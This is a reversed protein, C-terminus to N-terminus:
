MYSYVKSGSSLGRLGNLEWFQNQIVEFSNLCRELFSNLSFRFIHKAWIKPNYFGINVWKKGNLSRISESIQYHNFHSRRPLRWRQCLKSIPNWMNIKWEVFLWIFKIRISTWVLLHTKDTKLKGPGTEPENKDIKELFQGNKPRRILWLPRHQSLIMIRKPTSDLGNEIMPWKLCDTM